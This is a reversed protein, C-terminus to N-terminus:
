ANTMQLEEYVIAHGSHEQHYQMFEKKKIDLLYPFIENLLNVAEIDDRGQACADPFQVYYATTDGTEEDKVLALTLYFNIDQFNAQTVQNKKM